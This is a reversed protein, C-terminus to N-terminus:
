SESACGKQKPNEKYHYGYESKRYAVGSCVPCLHKGNKKTWGEEKARKWCETRDPGHSATSGSWDACKDCFVDTTITFSM